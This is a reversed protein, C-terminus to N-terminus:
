LLPWKSQVLFILGSNKLGNKSLNLFKIKTWKNDSIDKIFTSTLGLEALQLEIISKPLAMVFTKGNSYVFPNRGIDLIELQKWKAQKFYELCAGTLNNNFLSLEVLNSWNGNVLIKIMADDINCKDLILSYVKNKAPLAKVM